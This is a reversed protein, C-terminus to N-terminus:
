ARDTVKLLLEEVLKKYGDVLVSAGEQLPINECCDGCRACETM